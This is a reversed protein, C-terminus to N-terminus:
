SDSFSLRAMMAVSDALLKASGMMALGYERGIQEVDSLAHRLQEDNSTIKARQLASTMDFQSALIYKVEDESNRLRSMFVYNHFVTGDKRYNLIPFRGNDQGVGHVFQHLPRRMDETTREGQLFRCNHHLVDEESYGTLDCFADNVLVLPADESTDSLALAIGSGRVYTTLREPLKM